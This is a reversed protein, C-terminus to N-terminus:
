ARFEKELLGYEVVDIYSGEKFFSERRRGEERMGLKQALKQMAENSAITGCYIRHLNLVTFGHHLILRAVEEGIGRGWYNKDGLLIAFEASRHIPDINQLSVNGIHLGAKTVVALVLNERQDATGAIYQLALERNYPYVHHGNHANVEADNLWNIYEGEIDQRLLPRLDVTTGEIFPKLEM